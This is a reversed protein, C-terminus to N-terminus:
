SLGGVTEQKVRSRDFLRVHGVGSRRDTRAGRNL